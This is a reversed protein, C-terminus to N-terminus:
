IEALERFSSIFSKIQVSVHPSPTFTADTRAAGALDIFGARQQHSLRSPAVYGMSWDAFAREQVPKSEMLILGHHRPDRLIVDYIRRVDKLEGELVQFFSGDHFLLLGSVGAETNNKRASKLISDLDADSVEGRASSLYIMRYLNAQHTAAM